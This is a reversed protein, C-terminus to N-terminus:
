NGGVDPCLFRVASSWLILSVADLQENPMSATNAAAGGQKRFEAQFADRTGGDLAGRCATDGMEQTGKRFSARDIVTSMYMEGFGTEVSAQYNDRATQTPAYEDASGVFRVGSVGCAVCASVGVAVLVHKLFRSTM